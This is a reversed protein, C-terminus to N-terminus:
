WWIMIMEHFLPIESTLCQAISARELLWNLDLLIIKFCTIDANVVTHLTSVMFGPACVCAGTIPHCDAGNNCSCPLMCGEGYYGPPCTENCYLGTWGASCTCEGSLPHCSCRLSFSLHWLLSFFFSNPSSEAAPTEVSWKALPTLTHLRTQALLWEDMWTDVHKDWISSTDRKEKTRYHSRRNAGLELRFWLMLM